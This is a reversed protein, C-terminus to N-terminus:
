YEDPEPQGATPSDPDGKGTFDRVIVTYREGGEATNSLGFAEREMGILKGLAEMQDKFVKTRKPLDAILAFADGVKKREADTIGGDSHELLEYLRHFLDPSDVSAMVEALLQMAVARANSLMGRHAIRIAAEAAGNVLVTATETTASTAKAVERAVEKKAVLEDAKAHIRSKLDRTWGMEKARKQVATHSCGARTGIERQTLIGARYDLEVREWDIPLLDAAKPKDAPM